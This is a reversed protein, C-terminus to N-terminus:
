RLTQDSRGVLHQHGSQLSVHQPRQDFWGAGPWQGVAGHPRQRFSSEPFSAMSTWTNAVPDYIQGDNYQTGAM